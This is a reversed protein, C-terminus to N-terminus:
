FIFPSLTPSKESSIEEDNLPFDKLKESLPFRPNYNKLDIEADVIKGFKDKYNNKTNEL